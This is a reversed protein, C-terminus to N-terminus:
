ATLGKTPSSQKMLRLSRIACRLQEMCLVQFEAETVYLRFEVLKCFRAELRQLDLRSIGGLRTFTNHHRFLNDDSYKSALCMATLLIRHVSFSTVQLSPCRSCARDIYVLALLLCRIGRSMASNNSSFTETSSEGSSASSGPDKGTEPSTPPSLPLGVGDAAFLVPETRNNLAKVLRWLYNSISIPPVAPGDFWRLVKSQPRLAVKDGILAMRQLSEGFLNVIDRLSIGHTKIDRRIRQLGVQAISVHLQIDDASIQRARCIASPQTDDEEEKYETATAREYRFDAQKTNCLANSSTPSYAYETSSSPTLSELLIRNTKAAGTTMTRACRKAAAGGTVAM